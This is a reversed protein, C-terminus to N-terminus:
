DSSPGSPLTRSTDVHVQGDRITVAFRDLPRPAPGSLVAGTLSFQAGHCPCYIMNREPLFNVNCRQHTCEQSLALFGTSRRILLFGSKRFHTGSGVSFREIPGVVIQGKPWESTTPTFFLKLLLGLQGGLVVLGATFWGLRVLRRRTVRTRSHEQDMQVSGERNAAYVVGTDYSTKEM